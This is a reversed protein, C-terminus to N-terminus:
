EIRSAPPWARERRLYSRCFAEAQLYITREVHSDLIKQQALSYHLLRSSTPACNEERVFLVTIEDASRGAVTYRNAANAESAPVHECIGRAYGQNCHQYEVVTGHQQSGCHGSYADLLPLRAHSFATHPAPQLPQFFPCPM